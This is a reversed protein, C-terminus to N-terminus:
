LLVINLRIWRHKSILSVKMILSIFEYLNKSKPLSDHIKKYECPGEDICSSRDLCGRRFKRDNRAIIRRGPFLVFTYLLFRRASTTEFDERLLSRFRRLLATAICKEGYAINM